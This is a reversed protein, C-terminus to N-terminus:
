ARGLARNVTDWSPAALERNTSDPSLEENVRGRVVETSVDDPVRGDPPYLKKLVQLVRRVQPGAKKNPNPGKPLLARFHARSVRIGMARAGFGSKERAANKNWWITLDARWFAPDGKHYAASPLIYGVISEREERRLRAIDDADPGEFSMCSWPLQGSALWERLREKALVATGFSRGALVLADSLWIWDITSSTDDATAM